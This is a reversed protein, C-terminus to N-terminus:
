ALPLRRYNEALREKNTTAIKKLGAFTSQFIELKEKKSLM